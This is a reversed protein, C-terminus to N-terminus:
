TKRGVSQVSFKPLKSLKSLKKGWFFGFIAKQGSKPWKKALKAFGGFLVAHHKFIASFDPINRGGVWDRGTMENPNQPPVLYPGFAFLPAVDYATVPVPSQGVPVASSVM